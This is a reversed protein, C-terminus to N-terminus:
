CRKQKAWFDVIIGDVLDFSQSNPDFGNDEISQSFGEDIPSVRLGDPFDSFAQLRRCRKM